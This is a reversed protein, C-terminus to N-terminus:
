FPEDSLRSALEANILASQRQLELVPLGDELNLRIQTFVYDALAQLEADNVLVFQPSDVPNPLSM